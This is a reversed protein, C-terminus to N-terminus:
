CRGSRRSGPSGRAGLAATVEEPPLAGRRLVRPERGVLDVVTSAAGALPVAAGVYVAVGDGLARRVGECTAPTPEGSRNASTVALPGTRSLLAAAVPDAPVRVGVTAGEEGLDWSLAPEARPLVLTLPGPWFREALAWARGDMTAVRAAEEATAVLVPLTLGRPRRKLAFVRRTAEPVDPRAALGYVTDTPVVVCGGAALAREAAALAEELRDPGFVEPM